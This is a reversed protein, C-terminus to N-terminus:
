RHCEAAPRRRIAPLAPREPPAYAWHKKYVAGQAIWQKLVQRQADTLHKNSKPPPMREDDDTSFIRTVLESKDPKGPVIATEGSEAPKTAIEAVDLRLKAKRESADPGHCKFCNNSLIPVVDRNFDVAPTVPTAPPAADLSNSGFRLALLGSVVLCLLLQKM